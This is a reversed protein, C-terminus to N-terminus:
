GAAAGSGTTEPTRSKPPRGIPRGHKSLTKPQATASVAREPPQWGNATSPPRSCMWADVEGSVWAVARGSGTLKRPPPFTGAAVAAFLATRGLTTLALVESLRM